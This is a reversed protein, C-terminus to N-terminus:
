SGRWADRAVRHDHARGDVEGVVEAQGDDGLADLVLDREAHQDLVAAVAGLAVEEAARQGAGSSVAQSVSDATPRGGAQRRRGADAVGPPTGHQRILIRTVPLAPWRPSASTRTRRSSPCSTQPSSTRRGGGGVTTPDTASRAQTRSQTRPRRRRGARRSAACAGRRSGRRPLVEHVRVDGAREVQELLRDRRADAAEHERARRAREPARQGRRRALGRRPDGLVDRRDRAVDVARRLGGGLVEALEDVAVVAQRAQDQAGRAEEGLGVVAVVDARAVLVRVELDVLQQVAADVELVHHARM